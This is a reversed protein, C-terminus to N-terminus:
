PHGNDGRKNARHISGRAACIRLLGSIVPIVICECDWLTIRCASSIKSKIELGRVERGFRNSRNSFHLLIDPNLIFWVLDSARFIHRGFSVSFSNLRFKLKLQCGFCILYRPTWM